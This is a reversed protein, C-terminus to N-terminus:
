YFKYRFDKINANEKLAENASVDSTNKRQTLLRDKVDDLNQKQPEAAKEFATVKFMYVGSQDKVPGMLKNPEAGYMYGLLVPAPGLSTVTATSFQQYPVTIVTSNVKAAIDSITSAGGAVADDFRKKLTEAKKEQRVLDTLKMKVDEVTALGENSKRVLRAVIIKTNDDVEFPESVDGENREENYSWMVVNRADKIGALARDNQKVSEAFRKSLGKEDIAKNFLEEDNGVSGALENAQAIVSSYTESSPEIVREIQGVKVKKNSPAHTVKIIHVGQSSTVITYQGVGTNRMGKIVEKPLEPSNDAKWGFDGGRSNTNPDTSHQKVADEFAEGGRISALIEAAKTRAKATDQKTVGEPRVLIQSARYYTVTDSAVGLVKATVFAGDDYAPGIVTGPKADFISDELVEVFTGRRVYSTDFYGGNNVIFASDNKTEKFSQTKETIWDFASLSDERTPVIDFVVYELKRSADLQFDEPHKQLYEELEADTVAITSDAITYYDLKVVEAKLNNSAAFYEEKAELSNVFNTKSIYSFYTKNKIDDIVSQDIYQVWQDEEQPQMKKRYELAKGLDLQGTAPNVYQQAIQGSNPDTFFRVVMPHPKPAQFEYWTLEEPSVSINLKNYQNVLIKERFFNEWVQDRILVQMDPNLGGYQTQYNQEFEKYKQDFEAYQIKEGNMKGVITEQNGGFLSNNGSLMDTLIFALISIGILAIVLGSRQRIKGIVAM